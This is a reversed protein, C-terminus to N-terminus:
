FTPGLNRSERRRAGEPRLPPSIVCGLSWRKASGQVVRSGRYQQLKQGFSDCSSSPAETSM